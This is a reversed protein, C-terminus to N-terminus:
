NAANDKHVSCGLYGSRFDHGHIMQQLLCNIIDTKRLTYSIHLDHLHIPMSSIICHCVTMSCACKEFLDLPQVAYNFGAIASIHALQSKTTEDRIRSKLVHM